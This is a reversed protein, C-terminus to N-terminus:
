LRSVIKAVNPRNPRTKGIRAAEEMTDPLRCGRTEPTLLTLLGAVLAMGAFLASPLQEWVSMGLAPTLPAVIAGVRGMMSCFAFLTQRHQTPFLESTYLYMATVVMSIGYKSVLYVALSAEYQDAPMFIYAIQGAACVWYAMMLVPKRGVREVLLMASWFGPIEVAAVVMYNHYQNGSINVANISLGYYVLTMTIWWVPAVLCRLLIAKHRFVKMLLWPESDNEKLKIATIRETEEAAERLEQLTKASVKRGNIQAINKLAAEAEEYKGKSLYWRISEPMIWFYTIALLQPTYLVLTLHRWNPVAWALLGLIIQGMAFCSNSMTGAIVRYKAPVVELILIYGCALIGGAGLASEFFVSIIFGIYTAAFYRLLGIWATNFAVLALATRRGWRDALAGAVPLAVLAGATRASGLLSRRWEDCGLELTYVATNTNEYVYQECEVITTSDFLAAPCTGAAAAASSNFRECSTFGDGESPVANLIWSPAFVAEDPNECEPILCRTDIRGTTFVFENTSFASLISAAGCLLLVRVQYRGLQGVERALLAEVSAM